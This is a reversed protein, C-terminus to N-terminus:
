KQLKSAVWGQSSEARGIVYSQVTPWYGTEMGVRWRDERKEKIFGPNSTQINNGM